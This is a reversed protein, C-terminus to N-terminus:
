STKEQKLMFHIVIRWQREHLLSLPAVSIQQRQKFQM